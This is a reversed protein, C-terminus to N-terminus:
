KGIRCDAKEQFLYNWFHKCRYQSGCSQDIGYGLNWKPRIRLIAKKARNRLSSLFHIPETDQHAKLETKNGCVPCLLWVMRDMM